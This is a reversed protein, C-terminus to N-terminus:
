FPLKDAAKQSSSSHHLGGEVMVHETNCKMCKYHPYFIHTDISNPTNWGESESWELGIPFQGTQALHRSKCLQCRFRNKQYLSKIIQIATQAYFYLLYYLSILALILGIKEQLFLIAIIILIIPIAIKADDRDFTFIASGFSFKMIRSKWLYGKEAGKPM